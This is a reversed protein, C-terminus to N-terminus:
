TLDNHTNRAGDFRSDQPPRNFTIRRAPKLDKANNELTHFHKKNQFDHRHMVLPSNYLTEEAEGVRNEYLENEAWSYEYASGFQKNMNM